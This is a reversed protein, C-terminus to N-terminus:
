SPQTPGTERRREAHRSVRWKELPVASRHCQGDSVLGLRGEIRQWLPKRAVRRFLYLAKPAWRNPERRTRSRARDPSRVFPGGTHVVDDPYGGLTRVFANYTGSHSSAPPSAASPKTSTTAANGASACAASATSGPSRGSSSGASGTSLRPMSRVTKTVAAPMESLPSPMRRSSWSAASWGRTVLVWRCRSGCRHWRVRRRVRRRRGRRGGRGRRCCGRNLTMAQRHITSRVRPRSM